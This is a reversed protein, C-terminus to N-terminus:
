AVREDGAPRDDARPASQGHELEDLAQELFALQEATLLRNSAVRRLIEQQRSLRDVLDPRGDEPIGDQGMEIYSVSTKLARALAEPRTIRGGAEWNQITRSTVGLEHALREQSLEPVAERLAAVRRGREPNPPQAKRPMKVFFAICIEIRDGRFKKTSSM